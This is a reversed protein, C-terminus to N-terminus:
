PLTAAATPAARPRGTSTSDAPRAAMPMQTSTVTHM